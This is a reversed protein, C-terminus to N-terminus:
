DTDDVNGLIGADEAVDGTARTLGVDDAVTHDLDIVRGTRATGGGVQGRVRLIGADVGVGGAGARHVDGIVVDDIRGGVADEGIAAARHIDGVIRGDGAIRRDM